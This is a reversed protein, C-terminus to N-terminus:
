QFNLLKKVTCSRLAMLFHSCVLPKLTQLFATCGAFKCREVPERVNATGVTRIWNQVGFARNVSDAIRLRNTIHYKRSRWVFAGAHPKKNPPYPNPSFGRKPEVLRAHEGPRAGWRSLIAASVKARDKIELWTLRATGRSAGLSPPIAELRSRCLGM